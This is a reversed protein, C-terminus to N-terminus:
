APGENASERLASLIEHWEDVAQPLDYMLADSIGVPDRAELGDRLTLLNRNLRDIGTNISGEGIKLADLDLEMAEATMVVAEHVVLWIDLATGLKEMAPGLEDSQILEAAEKQLAGATTLEMTAGSLTQDVLDALDASQLDVERATREYHERNALQDDNWSNGDVMVNIIVRGRERAIAAVEVIAEGVTETTVTPCPEQDLLVRM